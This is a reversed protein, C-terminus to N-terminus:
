NSFLCQMFNPKSNSFKVSCNAALKKNTLCPCNFEEVSKFDDNEDHHSDNTVNPDVTVIFYFINLLVENPDIIDWPPYIKIINKNDFNIKGVIEPVLLLKISKSSNLGNICGNSINKDSPLLSNEKVYKDILNSDDNLIKGSIIFRSYQWIYKNIQVIVCPSNTKLHDQSMQHRWIRISSIKRAILTQLREVLSGKKPKKKKKVVANIITDCREVSLSQKSPPSTGTSIINDTTDISSNRNLTQPPTLDQSIKQSSVQSIEEVSKDEIIIEKESLDGNLISYNDKPTNDINTVSQSTVESISLENEFTKDDDSDDDDGDDDIVVKTYREDGGNSKDDCDIVENIIVTRNANEVESYFTADSDISNDLKGQSHESQIDDINILSGDLNGIIDSITKNSDSHITVNMIDDDHESDDGEDIHQNIIIPSSLSQIEDIQQSNCEMSHISELFISSPAPSNVDVIEISPSEDIIENIPSLCTEIIENIPSLCTEIILNDQYQDVINKERPKSLKKPSDATPSHCIKSNVHQNEKSKILKVPSYRLRCSSRVKENDNPKFRKLQNCDKLPSRQNKKSYKILQPPSEYVVSSSASSPSSCNSNPKNRQINKHTQLWQEIYQTRDIMIRSRGIGEHFRPDPSKHFVSIGPRDNAVIPSNIEKKRPSTQQLNCKDQLNSMTAMLPQM